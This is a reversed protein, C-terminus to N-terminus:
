TDNRVAFPKSRSDFGCTKFIDLGLSHNCIMGESKFGCLQEASAKFLGIRHAPMLYQAVALMEPRRVRRAVNIKDSLHEAIISKNNYAMYHLGTVTGIGHYSSVAPDSVTYSGLPCVEFSQRMNKIGALFYIDIKRFESNHPM